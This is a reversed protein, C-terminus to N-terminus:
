RSELIETRAKKTLSEFILRYSQDAMKRVVDDPVDGALYMSSWHEKNLYYGPIIVGAYQERLLYSFEPELKFSILPEGAKDGGRLAFMKGNLTYRTAGWEEKFDKEAKTKSLLYEDLWDYNM